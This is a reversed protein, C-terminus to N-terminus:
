WPAPWPTWCRARSSSTPRPTRSGSRTSRTRCRRRARDRGGGPDPHLRRALHVDVRRHGPQAAGPQVARRRRLARGALRAVRDAHDAPELDPGLHEVFAKSVAPWDAGPVASSTRGTRAPRATSSAWTSTAASGRAAPAAAPARPRRAGQRADDADGAARAHPRADAPGARSARSSPSRTSSRRRPRAALRRQVAGRVMLAYSLNNIDESTCAFHVLEGVDRLASGEPAAALRSKLFYEVAKVDHM